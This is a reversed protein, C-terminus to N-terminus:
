RLSQLRGEINDKEINKLHREYQSKNMYIVSEYTNLIKIYYLVTYELKNLLIMNDSKLKVKLKKKYKKLKDYIENYLHKGTLLHRVKMFNNVLVSMYSEYIEEVFAEDIKGKSELLESTTSLLARMSENTEKRLAYFEKIIKELEVTEREKLISEKNLIIFAKKMDQFDQEDKRLDGEVKLARNLCITSEDDCLVEAFYSLKVLERLTNIDEVKNYNSDFFISGSIEGSINGLFRKYFIAERYLKGKVEIPSSVKIKEGFKSHKKLQKQEEKSALKYFGM